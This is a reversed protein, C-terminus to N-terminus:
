QPPASDRGLESCVVGPTTQENDRNNHVVLFRGNAVWLGPTGQYLPTRLGTGLVGRDYVLGSKTDNTHGRFIKSLPAPGESIGWNREDRGIMNVPVGQTRVLFFNSISANLNGTDFIQWFIMGSPALVEIELVGASGALPQTFGAGGLQTQTYREWDGMNYVLQIDDSVNSGRGTVDLQM